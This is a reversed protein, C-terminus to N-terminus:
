AASGAAGWLTAEWCCPTSASDTEQPLTDAGGRKCQVQTSWGCCAAGGPLGCSEWDRVRARGSAGECCGGAGPSVEHSHEAPVRFLFMCAGPCHNADLPTVEVGSVTVAEDLALPHVLGPPLGIDLQPLAPAAHCHLLHLQKAHRRCSACMSAFM